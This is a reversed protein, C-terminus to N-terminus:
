SGMMKDFMLSDKSFRWVPHDRMATTEGASGCRARPRRSRITINLWSVTLTPAHRGSSLTGTGSCAQGCSSPYPVLRSRGRLWSRPAVSLNGDGSEEETLHRERYVGRWLLRVARCRPPESCSGAGRRRRLWACSALECWTIKGDLRLLVDWGDAVAEVLAIGKRGSTPPRRSLPPGAPTDPDHIEVRLHTGNM